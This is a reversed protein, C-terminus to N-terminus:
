RNKYSGSLSCPLWIEWVREVGWKDGRINIPWLCGEPIFNVCYVHVSPNHVLYANFTSQVCAYNSTFDMMHPTFCSWTVNVGYNHSKCVWKITHELCVKTTYPICIIHPGFVHPTTHSNVMHSTFGSLTIDVGHNHSIYVVTKATFLTLYTFTPSVKLTFRNYQSDM